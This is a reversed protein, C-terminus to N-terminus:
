SMAGQEDHPLGKEFSQIKQAMSNGGEYSWMKISEANKLTSGGKDRRRKEQCHLEQM